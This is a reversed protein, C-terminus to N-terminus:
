ILFNSRNIEVTEKMELYCGKRRHIRMPIYCREPVRGDGSASKGGWRNETEKPSM